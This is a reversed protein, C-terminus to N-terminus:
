QGGGGNVYAALAAMLAAKKTRSVPVINGHVVAEGERVADLHELNILYGKGCRYFSGLAKLEEETKQMTGAAVFGGDATNFILNHNQSEVYYIRSVALRRMEGGGTLVIYKERRREIREVAKDMLQSFAFYSVPKVLYDLAGVAYGRIAYQPMNTIFILVVESDKRRIIEAATMGDMYKMQVDMLIIDFGSYHEAIEDGDAFGTVQLNHGREQKYKELYQQMQDAFLAEDEVVAVRIM